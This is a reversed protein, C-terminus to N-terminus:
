SYPHDIKFRNPNLIQNSISFYKQILTFQTSNIRTIFHPADQPYIEIPYFQKNFILSHM